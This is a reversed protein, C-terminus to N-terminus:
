KLLAKIEADTMTDKGNPGIELAQNNELIVRLNGLTSYQSLKPYAKLLKFHADSFQKIQMLAQKPQLDSDEWFDGRQYFTRKAINQVNAVVVTRDDSNQFTGGIRGNAAPKGIIEFKNAAGSMGGVGGNQMQNQGRSAQANASQAVGFSGSDFKSASEAKTKVDAIDAVLMDVTKREDALFTTYETPIGYTKSLQVVEDILEQNSHLRIEDLLYGIKRAAWLQPMFENEDEKDPLVANLTFTKKSNDAMGTITVKVNGSGTYRGFVILQTGKFIDPIDASPFRDSIQVGSIELTVDALLPDSVKAFFTSVKAEINENPRVYDTSGRNQEALKDLLHTNVDYGVGFVFIKAKPMKVNKLITDLDTIGATPQGDTLFVVYNRPSDLGDFQKRATILANNIDTSGTADIDDISNLAKKRIESTPNQMKEFMLSPSENFTIINFRDQEKLTNLCFKLASKAQNIKEGAMSGTRDLVFIVNKPQVKTKDIPVAPSAMLMFYGPKGAERHAVLDIGLDNDSVSYYVVMDTDPRTNKASWTAIAENASPHEIDLIHTPSYINTIPRKCKIKITVKCSELPRASFRETSLSYVYRYTSGSKNIVEAYSLRIRKDGNAPIPYVRARFTNRDIYELIAPDKRQRVISEYINRAEDKDLIKGAIEDEGAFMSFKTIAAGLPMPFIYMGERDVNTDNHFIQDVKTTCLQDAINVNVEHYKVTFLEGPVVITSHPREVPFIMGDALAGTATMVLIMIMLKWSM